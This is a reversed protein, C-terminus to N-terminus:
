VTARGVRESTQHAFGEERSPPEFQADMARMVEEPVRRERKANHRLCVELPTAFWLAEARAGYKAALTLFPGRHMRTLNTADVYTASIGLQLRKVVLYRLAEFVEMHITQNGRDDSLLVRMGDSSLPQVGHDAFWTSKGAGPLGIALILRQAEPM